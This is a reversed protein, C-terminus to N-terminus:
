AQFSLPDMRGEAKIGKVDLVLELSLVAGTVRALAARGLGGGKRVKTANNQVHRFKRFGMFNSPQQKVVPEEEDAGTVALSKHTRKQWKKYLEGTPMATASVV